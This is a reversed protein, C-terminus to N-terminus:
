YRLGTNPCIFGQPNDPVQAWFERLATMLEIDTILHNMWLELVPCIKAHLTDLNEQSM